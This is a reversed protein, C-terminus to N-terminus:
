KECGKEDFVRFFAKLHYYYFFFFFFKWCRISSIVMLALFSTFANFYCFVKWRSFREAFIWGNRGINWRSSAFEWCKEHANETGSCLKRIGNRSEIGLEQAICSNVRDRTRLLPSRYSHLTRTQWRRMGHVPYSFYYSYCEDSFLITFIYFCISSFFLFSFYANFIKQTTLSFNTFVQYTLYM